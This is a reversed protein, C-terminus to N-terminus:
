TKIGMAHTDLNCDEPIYRSNMQDIPCKEAQLYLCFIAEFRQYGEGSIYQTM